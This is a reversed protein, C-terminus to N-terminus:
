PYLVRECQHKNPRREIEKAEDDTIVRLEWYQEDKDKGRYQPPKSVDAPEDAGAPRWHHPM